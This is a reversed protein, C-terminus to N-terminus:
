NQAIFALLLELYKDRNIKKEKLTTLDLLIWDDKRVVIAKHHKLYYFSDGEITESTKSQINEVRYASKPEYIRLVYIYKSAFDIHQKKSYILKGSYDYVDDNSLNNYLASCCYIVSDETNITIHYYKNKINLKDNLSILGLSSTNKGEIQIFNETFFYNSKEHKRINDFGISCQKGNKLFLYIKNNFLIKFYTTTDLYNGMLEQQHPFSSISDPFNEDFLKLKENEKNIYFYEMGQEEEGTLPNISKNFENINGVFAISNTKDFM